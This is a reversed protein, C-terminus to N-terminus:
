RRGVRNWNRNQAAYLSYSGGFQPSTYMVIRNIPTGNLRLVEGTGQPYRAGLKIVQTTGNAYLVAIQMIMPNGRVSEFRLRDYTKGGLNLFQRNTSGSLTAGLTVWRSAFDRHWRTRDFRQYPARDRDFYDDGDYDRVERDYRDAPPPSPQPRYPQALASSGSLALVLTLLSTKM